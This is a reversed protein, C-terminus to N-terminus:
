QCFDLRREPFLVAHLAAIACRRHHQGHGVQEVGIRMWAVVLDPLGHVADDAAAADVLVDHAGDLREDLRNEPVVKMMAVETRPEAILRRSSGSNRRPSDFYVASM